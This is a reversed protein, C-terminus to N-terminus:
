ALWCPPMKRIPLGVQELSDEEGGEQPLQSEVGVGRKEDKRKRQELGAEERDGFRQQVDHADVQQEVKDQEQHQNVGM